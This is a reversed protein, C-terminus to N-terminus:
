PSEKAREAAPRKPREFAGAVAETVGAKWRPAEAVQADHVAIAVAALERESAGETIDDLDGSSLAGARAAAYVRLYLAYVSKPQSPRM